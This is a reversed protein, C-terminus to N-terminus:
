EIKFGLESSLEALTIYPGRLKKISAEEIKTFEVTSYKEPIGIFVKLRKYAERGKARDYPLMGRVTRKLILDPRRPQFPGKWPATLTKRELRQKYEDIIWRKNGSIVAKEANVVVVQEGLLLKKAIISSLRGLLCNSADIIITKQSENGKKSM